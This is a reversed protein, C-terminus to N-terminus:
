MQQLRYFVNPNASDLSITEAVNTQTYTTLPEWDIPAVLSTTYLLQYNGPNAYLSLTRGLIPDTQPRLLPTGGVVVVEGPQGTVNAYTTGAATNGSAASVQISYITSAPSTATQFNIQAVQNTGSLPQNAATQLQIVLQGGLDQISGAIIPASFTLTPNTLVTDPWAVTLLLNTVTSSSSTIVPLNGPQGASVATAGLQFTLFDGIFVVLTETTSLAPNATDTVTVTFYNTTSAYAAGPTWSIAGNTPNITAGTPADAGLSFTLPDGTLNKPLTKLRLSGNPTATVGSFAAENSFDSEVGSSNVAKAAFYYTENEVLGAILVNTVLGVTASNTYQHSAGGYYIDYGAVNPDASPSWSLSASVAARAGLPASTLLAGVIALRLLV